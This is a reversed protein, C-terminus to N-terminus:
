QPFSFEYKFLKYQNTSELLYKNQKRNNHDGVVMQRRLYFYGLVAVQTKTRVGLKDYIHELHTRLTHKKIGLFECLAWAETSPIQPKILSGVLECERPTLREFRSFDYFPSVDRSLM